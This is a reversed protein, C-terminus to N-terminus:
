NTAALKFICIFRQDYGSSDVFLVKIKHDEFRRYEPITEVDLKTCFTVNIHETSHLFRKHMNYCLILCFVFTRETIFGTFLTIKRRLLESM